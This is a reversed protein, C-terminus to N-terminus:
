CLITLSINENRSNDFRLSEGLQFFFDKLEIFHFSVPPRRYRAHYKFLRLLTFVKHRHPSGFTRPQPAVGRELSYAPSPFFLVAGM